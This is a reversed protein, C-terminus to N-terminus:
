PETFLRAPLDPNLARDSFTMRTFSDPGETILVSNLLGSDDAREIIISTIIATLSEDRPLFRITREDVLEVTFLENDTFRGGFWNTIEALVVHLAGVQPSRDEVLHGDRELFKRVRGNHMLLVSRVPELYEWRLSQPAQFAFTGHSVLPRALIQLHKEQVFTARVAQLLPAAESDGASADASLSGWALVLLIVAAIQTLPM